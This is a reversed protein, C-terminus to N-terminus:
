WSWGYFLNQDFVDTLEINPLVSCYALQYGIFGVLDDHTSEIPHNVSVKEVTEGDGPVKKRFGATM